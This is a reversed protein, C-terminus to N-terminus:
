IAQSPPGLPRAADPKGLKGLEHLLVYVYWVLPISCFTRVDSLGHM